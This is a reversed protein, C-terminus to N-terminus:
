HAVLITGLITLLQKLSSCLRHQKKTKTRIKSEIVGSLNKFAKQPTQSEAVTRSVLDKSQRKKKLM